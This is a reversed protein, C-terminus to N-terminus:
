VTFLCGVEEQIYPCNAANQQYLPFPVAACEELKSELNTFCIKHSKYYLYSQPESTTHEKFRFFLNKSVVKM